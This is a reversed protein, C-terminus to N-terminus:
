TERYAQMGAKMMLLTAGLGFIISAINVFFRVYPIFTLAQIIIVGVALRWFLTWGKKEEFPFLRDGLVVGLSLQSLYLIWLFLTLMLLGVPMGIVTVLLLVSLIPIVILGLFGWLLSEGPRQTIMSGIGKILRPFLLVLLLGMLLLGVAWIIKFWFRLPTYGFVRAAHQMEALSVDVNGHVTGDAIQVHEKESVRAM